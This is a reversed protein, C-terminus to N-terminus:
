RPTHHAGDLRHRGLSVQASCISIVSVIQLFPSVCVLLIEPSIHRLQLVMGGKRGEESFISGVRPGLKKEKIHTPIFM